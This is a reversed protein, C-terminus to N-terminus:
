HRVPRLDGSRPWDEPPLIQARGPEPPADDARAREIHLLAYGCEYPVLRAGSLAADTLADEFFPVFVKM